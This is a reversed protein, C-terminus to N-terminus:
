RTRSWRRQRARHRVDAAREQAPGSRYLERTVEQFQKSGEGTFDILVNPRSTQDFGARASKIADGTMAPPRKYVYWQEPIDNGTTGGPQM